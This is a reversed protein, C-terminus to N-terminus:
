VKGTEVCFNSEECVVFLCTKNIKLKLDSWIEELTDFTISSIGVCEWFFSNFKHPGEVCVSITAKQVYVLNPSNMQM